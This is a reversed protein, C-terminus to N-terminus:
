RQPESSPPKVDVLNQAPRDDLKLLRALELGMEEGAQQATKGQSLRMMGGAMHSHGGAKGEQKVLMRVLDGASLEQTGVRMSLFLRGEYGGTVLTALIGKGRVLLDALEAVWDPYPVSDLAVTILEGDHLKALSLADSLVRYYHLPLSPHRINSLTKLDALPLLEIYASREFETSERGLDMTDTIIGYLLATALRKDIPVNWHKLYEYVIATTAGYDQRLDMWATHEEDLPNRSPHHDVLIDVPHQDPLANNGTGPQTDMLAVLDYGSWDFDGDDVNVLPLNLLEVMAKNEARGITGSFALTTPLSLTHDLVAQLGLAAALADPDPNQHTLIVGKTRTKLSALAADLDCPM